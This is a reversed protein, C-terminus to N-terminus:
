LKNIKSVAQTLTVINVPYSILLDKGVKVGGVTLAAVDAPTKITAMIQDTRAEGVLKNLASRLHRFLEKKDAESWEFGAKTWVYRGETSADLDVATVLGTKKYAAVQANFVASGLGKGQHENAVLFSNHSVSTKGGLGQKFTRSVSGIVNNARDKIAGFVKVTGQKVNEDVQTTKVSLGEPLKAEAGILSDLEPDSLERGFVQKGVGSLRTSPVFPAPAKPKPRIKVPAADKDLRALDKTLPAPMCRCGWADGPNGRFGNPGAIPPKSFRQVTGQLKRHLPRVRADLQTWWVYKDIGNEDLVTQIAVQVATHAVNGARQAAGKPTEAGRVAKGLTKGAEALVRKVLEPNDALDPHLDALTRSIPKALRNM